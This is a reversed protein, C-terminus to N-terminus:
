TAGDGEDLNGLTAGNALKRGLLVDLEQPFFLEALGAGNLKEIAKLREVDV